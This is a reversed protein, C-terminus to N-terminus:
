PKPSRNQLRVTASLQPGDGRCCSGPFVVSASFCRLTLSPTREHVVHVRRLRGCSPPLVCRLVVFVSSPVPLRQTRVQEKPHTKSARMANPVYIHIHTRPESSMTLYMVSPAVGAVSETSTLTNTRAMRADVLHLRIHGLYPLSFLTRSSAVSSGFQPARTTTAPNHSRTALQLGPM